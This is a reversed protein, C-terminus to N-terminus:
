RAAPKEADLLRQAWAAGRDALPGFLDPASVGGSWGPPDGRRALPDEPGAVVERPVDRAPVSGSTWRETSLASVSIGEPEPGAARRAATLDALFRERGRGRLHLLLFPDDDLRTAAAEVVAVVHKCTPSPDDCACGTVLEAPHPFLRVGLAALEDELGEPAQGALLRASHRAQEVVAAVVRDWEAADLVPLGVEVLYPTARSGQVRASLAGPRARLDSVRGSREYARGRSVRLATAPGADDVLGRWRDSWRQRASM